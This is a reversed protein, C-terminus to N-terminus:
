IFMGTFDRRCKDENGGEYLQLWSDYGPILIV